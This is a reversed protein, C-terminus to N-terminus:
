LKIELEKGGSLFHYVNQLCHLSTLEIELNFYKYFWTGNRMKIFGGLMKFPYGNSQELGCVELMDSSLPIPNIDLGDKYNTTDIRLTSDKLKLKVTRHNFSLVQGIRGLPEKVYNGIRLEQPHIM